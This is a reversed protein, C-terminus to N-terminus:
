VHAEKSLGKLWMSLYTGLGITLSTLVLFSFTNLADSFLRIVLANSVVLISLSWGALMFMNLSRMRYVYYIAVAWLCWLLINLPKDDFLGELFMWLGFYGSVLALVNLPWVKNLWNIKFAAVQWLFFALTNLLFLTLGLNLFGCFTNQYLSISLNILALWFLWMLSQRSIFVWPTTLLAWNFFLQWPDAGTQYVQGFLAMLGGVFLMAVLLSAQRIVKNQYFKVYAIIALVIASEVLAFKAIHGMSQWNAAIFFILGFAIAVSGFWLLLQSVFYQWQRPQPSLEALRIAEPISSPNLHQQEILKALTQRVESANPDIM